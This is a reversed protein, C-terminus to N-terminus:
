FNCKTSGSCNIMAHVLVLMSLRRAHSCYQRRCAEDRDIELCMAMNGCESIAIGVCASYADDICVSRIYIEL